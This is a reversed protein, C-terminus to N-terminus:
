KITIVRKLSGKELTLEPDKGRKSTLEIKQQVIPRLQDAEKTRIDSISGMFVESGIKHSAQAHFKSDGSSLLISAFDIQSEASSRVGIRAQADGADLAGKGELTLYSGDASVEITAGRPGQELRLRTSADPWDRFKFSARERGQADRFSIADSSCVVHAVKATDAPAVQKGGIASGSYGAVFCISALSMASLTNNM